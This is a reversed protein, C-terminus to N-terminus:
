KLDAWSSGIGVDARLPVRLSVASEMQQKCKQGLESALESKVEFLLEDHVQLLMQGGLANIGDNKYVLIMAKKVLDSVSAQMPANIAAREGFKRIM